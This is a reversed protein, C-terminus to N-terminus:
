KLIQISQVIQDFQLLTATCPPGFPPVMQFTTVHILIVLDDLPIYVFPAEKTLAGNVLLARTQGIFIEQTSQALKEETTPFGGSWAQDFIQRVFEDISVGSKNELINISVPDADGCTQNACEPHLRIYFSEFGNIDASVQFEAEGPYQFSFGAQPYAYLIWEGARSCDTVPQTRVAAAPEPYALLNPALGPPPYVQGPAAEGAFQPGLTQALLALLRENEGAYLVILRGRKFFHPPARWQLQTIVREQPNPNSPIVQEIKYGSPSIGEAQAEAVAADPFEYVLIPEEWLLVQAGTVQMFPQKSQKGSLVATQGGAVPNSNLDALFVTLNYAPPPSTCALLFGFVVLALWPSLRRIVPVIVKKHM